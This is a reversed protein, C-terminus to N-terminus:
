PSGCDEMKSRRLTLAERGPPDLAVENNDPLGPIEIFKLAIGASASSRTLDGMDSLDLCPCIYLSVNTRRNPANPM